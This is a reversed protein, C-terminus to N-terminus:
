RMSMQNKLQTLRNGVYRAAKARTAANELNSALENDGIVDRVWMSFDCKEENHHYSYTEDSMQKLAMGLEALNKLMKGDSVWFRKDDPADALLKKATKKTTVAVQIVERVLKILRRRFRHAPPAYCFINHKTKV